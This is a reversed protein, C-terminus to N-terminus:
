GMNIELASKMNHDQPKLFKSAPTTIDDKLSLALGLKKVTLYSIGTARVTDQEDASLALNAGFLVPLM